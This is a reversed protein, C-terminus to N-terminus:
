PLPDPEPVTLLPERKLESIRTQIEQALREAASAATSLTSNATHERLVEVAKLPVIAEFSESKRSGKFKARHQFSEIASSPDLRDFDLNSIGFRPFVVSLVPKEANRGTLPDVSEASATILLLEVPLVAYVERAVRFACGCLYDAYIEQFRGKPM